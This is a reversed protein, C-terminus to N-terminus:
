LEDLTITMEGDMVDYKRGSLQWTRGEDDTVVATPDELAPSREVELELRTRNRLKLSEILRCLNDEPRRLVGHTGELCYLEDLLTGDDKILLNYAADMKEGTGLTLEVTQTGQNALQMNGVATYQYDDEGDDDGKLRLKERSTVEDNDYYKVTLDKVFAYLYDTYIDVSGTGAGSEFFDRWTTRKGNIQSYDYFGYLTLEVDGEVSIDNGDPDRCEIVVGSADSYPQYSDTGMATVLPLRTDAVQGFDCNHTVDNSDKGVGDPVQTRLYCLKGELEDYEPSNVNVFRCRTYVNLPAEPYAEQYSVWDGIRIRFFLTYQYSYTSRYTFSQLLVSANVSVAGAGLRVPKKGRLVALPTKGAKQELTPICNGNKAALQLARSMWTNSIILMKGYSYTKKEQNTGDGEQRANYLDAEVLHAGAYYRWAPEGTIIEPEEKTVRTVTQGDATIDYSYLEMLGTDKATYNWGTVYSSAQLQGSVAGAQSDRQTLQGRKWNGPTWGETTLGDILSDVRDLGMKLIYKGEGLIATKKQGDGAYILSGEAVSGRPTLRESGTTIELVGTGDGIAELEDPTLWYYYLATPHTMYLAQGKERATLGFLQCFDTLLDEVSKGSKDDDEDEPEYVTPSFRLKLPALFDPKDANDYYAAAIWIKTYSIGSKGVVGRHLARAFNIMGSKGAWGKLLRFGLASSIGSELNYTISVPPATWDQQAGESKLYGDFMIDFINRHIRVAFQQDMVPVLTEMDGRDVLTLTGTTCRIPRLMDKDDDEELTIGDEALAVTQATGTWQADYIMVDIRNGARDYCTSTYRLQGAM